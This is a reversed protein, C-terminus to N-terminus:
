LCVLDLELRKHDLPHGSGAQDEVSKEHKDVTSRRFSLLGVTLLPFFNINTINNTIGFLLGPLLTFEGESM